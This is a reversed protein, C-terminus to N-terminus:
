AIFSAIAISSVNSFINIVWLITANLVAQRWLTAEKCTEPMSIVLLFIIMWIASATCWCSLLHTIALHAWIATAWYIHSYQHHSELSMFGSLALRQWTWSNELQLWLAAVDKHDQLNNIHCIETCPCSTYKFTSYSIDLRSVLDLMRDELSTLWPCESIRQQTGLIAQLTNLRNM